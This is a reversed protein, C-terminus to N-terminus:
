MNIIKKETSGDSYLIIVIGKYSSTIERGTIDVIKVIKKSSRNDIALINFTEYKGDFDYQSLQYYNINNKIFKKHKYQYTIKHYSNGSGTTKNITEWNTGYLSHELIFYDNNTETSTQWTIININNENKVEFYILEVPLPNNILNGDSDYFCETTNNNNDIEISLFYDSPINNLDCEINGSGGTQDCDIITDVEGNPNYVIAEIKNGSGGPSNNINDPCNQSISFLNFLLIFNILLLSTVTKLVKFLVVLIKILM